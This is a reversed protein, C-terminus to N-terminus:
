TEAPCDPVNVTFMAWDFALRNTFPTAAVGCTVTTSVAFSKFVPTSDASREVVSLSPDGVYTENVASSKGLVPGVIARNVKEGADAVMLWSTDNLPVDDVTDFPVNSQSKPSPCTPVPAM